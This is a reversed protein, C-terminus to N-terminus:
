AVHCTVWSTRSDAVTINDCVVGGRQFVGGSWHELLWDSPEIILSVGFLTVDWKSVQIFVTYVTSVLFQIQSPMQNLKSKGAIPGWNFNTKSGRQGSGSHSKLSHVHTGAHTQRHSQTILWWRHSFTVTWFFVAATWMQIWNWGATLRCLLLRRLPRERVARNDQKILKM